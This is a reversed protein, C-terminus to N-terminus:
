IGKTEFQGFYEQNQKRKLGEVTYQFNEIYHRHATDFCSLGNSKVFEDFDPSVIRRMDYQMDPTPM